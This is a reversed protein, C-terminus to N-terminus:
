CDKKEIVAIRRELDVVLKKLEPLKPLVAQVKLWERIPMAYNGAIIQGPPVDKAIVAKGGAMVRDGVTTHDAVGVQGGFVVYSGLTSSGAIGVQGAILCHEGIVVNHALHVQNDLKAGTKIVTNGLTARDISCNAGVEVDDGIVVGGVQPIKHHIGGETVFGFGDSGIVTGAHIIVRNGITVGERISVNAHIVCDDGLISGDGVYAGPFLVVRDGIRAGAGVVAFPHISPDKGIVAGAGISSRDSIGSPVTLDVYFHKLALSFAYRPNKVLLLPMDREATGLPVIAASAHSGDLERLHKGDTVYTILGPGAERLGAAGTIEIDQTGVLEASLLQALEFLKM